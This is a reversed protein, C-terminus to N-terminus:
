KQLFHHEILLRLMRSERRMENAYKSLDESSASPHNSSSLKSTSNDIHKALKEISELRAALVPDHTVGINSSNNLSTRQILAKLSAVQRRMRLHGIVPLLLIALITLGASLEFNGTFSLTAAVLLILIFLAVTSMYLNKM